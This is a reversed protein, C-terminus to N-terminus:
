FNTMFENNEHSISGCYFSNLDRKFVFSRHINFTSYQIPQTKQIGKIIDENM